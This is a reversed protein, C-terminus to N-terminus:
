RPFWSTAWTSSESTFDRTRESTPSIVVKIRPKWTDICAETPLDAGGAAAAILHNFWIDVHTEIFQVFTEGFGSRQILNPLIRAAANKAAELIYVKVHQPLLKGAAGLLPRMGVVYDALKLVNWCAEFLFGTSVEVSGDALSRVAPGQSGGFRFTIGLFAELFIPPSTDDQVHGLVSPNGVVRARTGDFCHTVTTTAQLLGPAAPLSGHVTYDIPGVCREDPPPPPPPPPPDGGNGGCLNAADSPCPDDENTAGDGDIDPDCADGKADRDLDTQGPNSASPCNDIDDLVGDHDTDQCVDGQGNRDADEQFPNFGDACNDDTDPIGDRDRDPLRTIRWRATYECVTYDGCFGVLPQRIVDGALTLSSSPAATDGRNGWRYVGANVEEVRRLEPNVCHDDTLETDAYWETWRETAPITVGGLEIFYHDGFLEDRSWSFSFLDMSGSGDGSKTVLRCTEGFRNFERYESQYSANWAVDQFWFDQEDTRGSESLVAKLTTLEEFYSGGERNDSVHRTEVSMFGTWFRNPTPDAAAAGGIGVGGALLTLGALVGLRRLFAIRSRM